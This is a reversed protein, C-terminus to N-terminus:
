LLDDLEPRGRVVLAALDDQVAGRHPLLWLRRGAGGRGPGGFSAPGPGPRGPMNLGASARPRPIASIGWSALRPGPDDLLWKLLLSCSNWVVASSTRSPQPCITSRALAPM